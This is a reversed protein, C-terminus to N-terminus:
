EGCSMVVLTFAAEALPVLGSLGLAAYSCLGTRAAWRCVVYHAPVCGSQRGGWGPKEIDPSGRAGLEGM